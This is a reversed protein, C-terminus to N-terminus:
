KRRAALTGLRSKSASKSPAAPLAVRVTTGEGPRSDLEFVGDLQKIRERMGSIGVGLSARRNAADGVPPFGCGRDRVEVRLQSDTHSVEIEASTSGSYRHVNTLAEQVVRFVTTEIEQGYRPFPESIQVSAKIGSRGSFGEAYWRLAPGLGADDLMPPHLLYSVTRVERVAGDALLAASELLSAASQSGEPLAERLRGLTMKLAALSQGASEHLERALHRRQSDQENMLQQSLRRLEQHSAAHETVDQIVGIVRAVKGDDGLLPLSHALHVRLRGDAACYRAVYRFPRAETISKDVIERVRMRDSPHMRSWYIDTSCDQGPTLEYIKVLQRSLKVQNTKLDVEWSGFNAIEEAQALLAEREALARMAEVRHTVERAGVYLAAEREGQLELPIACISFWRRRGRVRVVCETEKRQRRSATQRRFDRIESILQPHLISELPRGILFRSCDHARTTRSAWFGLITGSPNALFSFEGFAKIASAFNKFRTLRRPRPKRPHFKLGALEMKPIPELRASQFQKCDQNAGHGGASM